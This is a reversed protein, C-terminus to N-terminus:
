PPVNIRNAKIWAHAADVLALAQAKNSFSSMDSTFGSDSGWMSNIKRKAYVVALQARARMARQIDTRSMDKFAEGRYEGVTVNGVRPDGYQDGTKHVDSNNAGRTNDHRKLASDEGHAQGDFPQESLGDGVAMGSTKAFFAIIRKVSQSNAAPMTGGASSQFAKRWDGASLADHPRSGTGAPKTRNSLSGTTDNNASDWRHSFVKLTKGDDSFTAEIYEPFGGSRQGYDFKVKVGHKEALGQLYALQQNYRGPNNRTRVDQAVAELGDEEYIEITWQHYNPEIIGKVIKKNDKGGTGRQVELKMDVGKLRRTLQQDGSQEVRQLQTKLASADNGSTSSKSAQSRGWQKLERETKQALTKNFTALSKAAFWRKGKTDKAIWGKGVRATGTRGGKRAVAKVKWTSRRRVLSLKVSGPKAKVKVTRLVSKIQAETVVKSHSQAKAKRWGTHAAMLAIRRAESGPKKRPKKRPKKPRRPKRPGKGKGRLKNGMRRLSNKAWLLLDDLYKQMKAAWRGFANKLKTFAKFAPALAKKLKPLIKALKPVLKTIAKLAQAGASVATKATSAGMTLAALIVEVAIMGVVTGITKGLEYLAGESNLAAILKKAGEQGMTGAATEVSGGLAKIFGEIEERTVGEKFIKAFLAEGSGLGDPFKPPREANVPEPGGADPEQGPDTDQQQDQEKDADQDVDDTDGDDNEVEEIASGDWDEDEDPTDGEVEDAEMQVETDVEPEEDEKDEDDEKDLADNDSGSDPDDADKDEGGFLMSLPVTVLKSGLKVLWAAAQFLFVVTGVTGEYVGKALGVVFGAMFEVDGSLLRAVTDMAKVKTEESSGKIEKLFGLVGSRLAKGLFNMEAPQPFWEVLKIFADLVFDILPGKYCEPLVHRWVNGAVFLPLAFINGGATATLALTLGVVFDMLPKVYDYLGQAGNALDTFAKGVNKSLDGLGKTVEKVVSQVSAVVAQLFGQSAQWAGLVGLKEMLGTAWKNLASGAEAAIKSATKLGDMVPGLITNKLEEAASALWAGPDATIANWLSRLSQVIKPVQKMLDFLPALISDNKIWEWAGKIADMLPKVTESVTDWLSQLGKKLAELPSLAPDIGLATAVHKWMTQGIKGLADMAQSAMDSAAIVFDYVPGGVTKLVDFVSGLIEVGVKDSAQNFSEVWSKFQQAIPSNLMGEFAKMCADLVKKFCECCGDLTGELVTQGNHTEDMLSGFAEAAKDLGLGNVMETMWDGFSKGLDEVIGDLGKDLLEAVKPFRRKLWGMLDGEMLAELGEMAIEIAGSIIDLLGTLASELADILSNLGQKLKEAWHDLAKQSKALFDRIEKKHKNALKALEDPLMSIITDLNDDIFRLCGKIFKTADDIVRAAADKARKLLAQVAKKAEKFLNTIAEKVASVKSKIWAWGRSLWSGGEADKKKEEAKSKARSEKDKAKKEADRLLKDADTQAKRKRNNAKTTQREILQDVENRRKGILKDQDATWRTRQADIDTTAQDILQKRDDASAKRAELIQKQSDDRQKVIELRKKEPENAKPGALYTDLKDPEVVIIETLATGVNDDKMVKDVKAQDILEDVAVEPVEIGDLEPDIGDFPDKKPELRKEGFDEKTQGKGKTLEAESRTQFRQRSQRAPTMDGKVEPATGAEVPLGKGFTQEIAQNIERQAKDLEEKDRAPDGKQEGNANADTGGQPNGTGKAEAPVNVPREKAAADIDADTQNDVARLLRDDVPLETNGDEVAREPDLGKGDLEAGGDEITLANPDTGLGPPPEKALAAMPSTAEEKSKDWTQQLEDTLETFNLMFGPLASQEITQRAGALAAQAVGAAERELAQVPSGGSRGNGDKKFQLIHAAEHLQVLLGKPDDTGPTGSALRILGKEAMAMVGASDAKPDNKLVSVEGLSEGTVAEVMQRIREDLPELSPEGEGEPQGDAGTAAANTNLQELPDPPQYATERTQETPTDINAKRELALGENGELRRKVEPDPAMRSVRDHLDAIGMSGYVRQMARIARNYLVPDQQRLVALEPELQDGLAGLRGILSADFTEDRKAGGGAPSERTRAAALAQANEFMYTKM